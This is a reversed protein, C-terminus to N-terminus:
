ISSIDNWILDSEGEFLCKERDYIKITQQAHMIYRKKIPTTVYIKVHYLHNVYMTEYMICSQKHLIPPRSWVYLEQAYKCAIMPFMYPLKLYNESTVHMLDLFIKVEEETFVIDFSKEKM